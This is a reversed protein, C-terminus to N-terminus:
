VAIWATGPIPGSSPRHEDRLDAVDTPEGAGPLQRRPGPQGRGMVLGVGVHVTAPDGLLARGQDAPSRDLGNLPNGRVGPESLDAVPDTLPTAAVDPDHGGGTLQDHQHEVAQTIVM